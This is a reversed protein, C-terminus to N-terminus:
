VLCQYFAEGLWDNRDSGTFGLPKGALEHYAQLFGDGSKGVPNGLVYNQEKIFEVAVFM